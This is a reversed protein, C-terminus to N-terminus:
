PSPKLTLTIPLSDRESIGVSLRLHVYGMRRVHLVHAGDTLFALTVTGTETTTVFAGSASDRVTVGALPLGSSEDYVGILRPRNPALAPQQEVVYSGVGDEFVVGPKLTVFVSNSTHTGEVSNDQCDTYNIEEIHEARISALVSLVNLPVGAIGTPPGPTRFASKNFIADRVALKQRKEFAMRDDTLAFVIRKGNVWINETLCPNFKSKPSPDFIRPRIKTIVDVGNDVMRTTNAIEDAGVRYVDRRSFATETVNVADLQTVTRKLNIALAKREPTTTFFRSAREFGIRRAVLQFERGVPVSLTAEGRANTTASTVVKSLGELVAVEADAIPADASDAVRVQVTTAAVTQGRAVVGSVLFALLCFGALRATKM